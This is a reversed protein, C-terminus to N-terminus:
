KSLISEYTFGALNSSKIKEILTKLVEQDHDSLNSLNPLKELLIQALKELHGIEDVQTCIFEESTNLHDPSTIAYNEHYLNYISDDENSILLNLVIPYFYKNQKLSGVQGQYSYFVLQINLTELSRQFAEDNILTYISDCTEAVNTIYDVFSIVQSIFSSSSKALLVIQSQNSSKSYISQLVLSM